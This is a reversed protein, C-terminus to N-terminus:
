LTQGDDITFVSGTVEASADSALYLLMPDLAAASMIRRRPFRALLKQGMPLEWMDDTLETMMYGPALVNVNIGKGAWDNALARGMQNVAAKSAAYAATGTPVWAGTISSVLVIRGRGHESSGAAVMRRAGERATLFVGRVNVSLLRDLADVDLGLASGPANMGANAIVTDVPGFAAAAADFAAIVSTEDAVDMAVARARGGAALIEAELEALMDARRAAVVVAAGGQALITAFRRGIGSSAGTVLAVRGSCDFPATM